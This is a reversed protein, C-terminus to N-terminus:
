ARVDSGYFHLLSELLWKFCHCCVVSSLSAARRWRVCVSSGGCSCTYHQVTRSYIRHRIFHCSHSDLTMQNPQSTNLTLYLTQEPVIDPKYIYIYTHTHTWTHTQMSAWTKTSSRMLTPTRAEWACSCMQLDTDRRSRAFHATCWNQNVEPFSNAADHVLMTTSAELGGTAEQTNHSSWLNVHHGTWFCM